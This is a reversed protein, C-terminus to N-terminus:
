WVLQELCGIWIIKPLALCSGLNYQFLILKLDEECDAVKIKYFGQKVENYLIVKWRESKKLEM